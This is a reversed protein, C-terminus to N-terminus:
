HYDLRGSKAATILAAFATASFALIPSAAGLKTDRVGITGPVSGIEVCNNEGQSRTPKRWNTAHALATHASQM